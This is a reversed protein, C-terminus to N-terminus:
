LRRGLLRWFFSSIKHFLGAFKDTLMRLLRSCTLLSITTSFFVYRYRFRARRLDEFTCSNKSAASNAFSTGFLLFIAKELRILKSRSTEIAQSIAVVLAEGIASKDCPMTEGFQGKHALKCCAFGGKGPRINWCHKPDLLVAERKAQLM